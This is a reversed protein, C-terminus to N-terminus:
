ALFSPIRLGAPQPLWRSVAQTADLTRRMRPLVVPFPLTSCPTPRQARKTTTLPIRLALAPHAMLPSSASLISNTPLPPLSPITSTLPTIESLPHQLRKLFSFAPATSAPIPKSCCRAVAVPPTTPTLYTLLPILSIPTSPKEQGAPMWSIPSTSPPPNRPHPPM